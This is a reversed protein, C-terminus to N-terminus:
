RSHKLLINPFLHTAFGQKFDSISIEKKTHIEQDHPLYRMGLRHWKVSKSQLFKIAKFQIVHGIPKDFHDRNYAAVAYMSEDRSYNFFGGGEMEGHNNLLYVLVGHDKEIDGLHIDWSDDSRTKRGAVTEHLKKFQGWTDPEPEEMMHLTWDLIPKEILSKYSKRFDRKIEGIKRTMEIFLEHRLSVMTNSDSLANWYWPSLGLGAHFTECSEWNSINLDAALAHAFNLCAKYLRKRAPMSVSSRFLPPLLAYGFYGFNYKGDVYAISLPWIGVPERDVMILLSSEGCSECRDRYVSHQFEISEPLYAFPIYDINALVEHWSHLDENKPLIVLGVENGLQVLTSCDIM